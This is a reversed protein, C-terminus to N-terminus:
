GTPEFTGELISQAIDTDALYGLQEGSQGQCLPSSYALTFRDQTMERVVQELSEQETYEVLEGDEIRKVRTVLTVANSRGGNPSFNYRLGGWM